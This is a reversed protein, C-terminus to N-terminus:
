KEKRRREIDRRHEEWAKAEEEQRRKLEANRKEQREKKEKEKRAQAERCGKWYLADKRARVDDRIRKEAEKRISEENAHFELQHPFAELKNFALSVKLIGVSLLGCLGWYVYSPLSKKM